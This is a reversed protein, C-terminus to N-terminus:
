LITEMYFLSVNLIQSSSSRKDQAADAKAIIANSKTEEFDEKLQLWLYSADFFRISFGM